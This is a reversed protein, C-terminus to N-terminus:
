DKVNELAYVGILHTQASNHNISDIIKKAELKDNPHTFVPLAFTAETIFTNCNNVEFPLCTKDRKRKYDGSIVVTEGKYELLIQASGLIHGAPIFKVKVGSMNISEGYHFKKNLKVITKWIKIKMINITEKTALIKKIIRDHM